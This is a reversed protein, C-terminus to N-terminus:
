RGRLIAAVFDEETRMPTGLGTLTISIGHNVGPYSSTLESVAWIRKGWKFKSRSGRETHLWEVQSSEIARRVHPLFKDDFGHCYVTDPWKVIM